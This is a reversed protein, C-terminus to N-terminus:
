AECNRREHQHRNEARTGTEAIALTRPSPPIAHQRLLDAPCQWADTFILFRATLDSTM